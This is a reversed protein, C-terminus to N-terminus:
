KTAKLLNLNVCKKIYSIIKLIKIESLLHNEIDTLLTCVMTHIKLTNVTSVNNNNKLNKFNKKLKNFKSSLM